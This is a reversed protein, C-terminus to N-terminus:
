VPAGSSIKGAIVRTVFLFPIQGVLCLPNRANGLGAMVRFSSQGRMRCDHPLVGAAARHENGTGGPCCSCEVSRPEPVPRLSSDDDISGPPVCRQRRSPRDELRKAGRAAATRGTFHFGSGSPRSSMPVASLNGHIKRNDSRRGGGVDAAGAPPIRRRMGGGENRIM